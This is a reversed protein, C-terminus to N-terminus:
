KSALKNKLKVLEAPNIVGMSKLEKDTEKIYNDAFRLVYQMRTEKKKKPKLKLSWSKADAASRSLKKEKKFLKSFM